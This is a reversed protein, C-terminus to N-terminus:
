GAVKTLRECLLEIDDPSPISNYIYVPIHDTGRNNRMKRIFKMLSEDKPGADLVVVVDPLRAASPALLSEPKDAVQVVLNQCKNQLSKVMHQWYACNKHLLLMHISNREMPLRQPLQMFTSM